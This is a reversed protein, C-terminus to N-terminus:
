QLLKRFVIQVYIAMWYVTKALHLIAENRFVRDFKIM